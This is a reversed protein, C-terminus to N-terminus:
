REAICDEYAEDSLERCEEDELEGEDLCAEYVRRALEECDDEDETRERSEREAADVEGDEDDDRYLGSEDAVAAALEAALPHDPGFARTGALVEERLPELWDPSALEVLFRSGDREVTWPTEFVLDGFLDLEIAFPLDDVRADLTLPGTVGVTQSCWVGAPVDVRDGFAWGDPLVVIEDVGDCDELILADATLQGQTIVVGATRAATLGVKTPNGVSTGSRTGTESVCAGVLFFLLCSRAM